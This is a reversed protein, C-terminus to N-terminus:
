LTRITASTAGQPGFAEQETKIKGGFGAEYLLQGQEDIRFMNGFRSAVGLSTLIPELPLQGGKGFHPVGKNGELFKPLALLAPVSGAIVILVLDNFQEVSIKEEALATFLRGVIEAKIPKQSDILLQILTDPVEDKFRPDGMVKQHLRELKEPSVKGAANVFAKINRRLRHSMLADCFGVVGIIANIVPFKSFVESDTAADLAMGGMDVLADKGEKVVTIIPFLADSAPKTM